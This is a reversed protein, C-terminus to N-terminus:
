TDKKAAAVLLTYGSKFRPKIPVNYTKGEFTWSLCLDIFTKDEKHTKKYNLRLDDM